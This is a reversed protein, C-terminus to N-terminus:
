SRWFVFLSKIKDQVVGFGETFEAKLQKTDGTAILVSLFAVRLVGMAVVFIALIGGLTGLTYTLFAFPTSYIFYLFMNM